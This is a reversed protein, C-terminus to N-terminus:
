IYASKTLKLFRSVAFLIDSLYIYSHFSSDYYVVSLADMNGIAFYPHGNPFKCVQKICCGSSNMCSDLSDQFSINQFAVFNVLVDFQLIPGEAANLFHAVFLTARLCSHLM